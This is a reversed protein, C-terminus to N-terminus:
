KANRSEGIVEILDYFTKSNVISIGEDLLNQIRMKTWKLMTPTSTDDFDIFLAANVGTSKKRCVRGIRQIHSIINKGADVLIGADFEPVDIGENFVVNGVIVNYGKNKLCDKVEEISGKRKTILHRNKHDIEESAEYITDSGCYFLSKIGKDKLEEIIMKGHEIRSIFIITKLNHKLLERTIEIVKENRQFNNVVLDKYIDAECRYFKKPQKSPYQIYHAFIRSLYGNDRLYRSTMSFISTGVVSDLIYDDLCRDGKHKSATFGILYEPNSIMIPTIQSIASSHHSEDIIIAKLSKLYDIYRKDNKKIRNYILNNTSIIIDSKELDLKDSLNEIKKTIGRAKMRDSIQNLINKRNNIILIKGEIMKCLAAIVETKGFGTPAECIGRKLMMCKIAAAVQHPRVEFDPSNQTMENFTDIVIQSNFKDVNDYRTDVITEFKVYPLVLSEVIGTPIDIWFNKVIEKYFYAINSSKRYNETRISLRNKLREIFDPDEAIVSSWMEPKIILM